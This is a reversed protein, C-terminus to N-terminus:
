PHSQPSGSADSSVSESLRHEQVTKEIGNIAERKHDPILHSYRMTMRIDKHRMLERITFLPTGRLALWSAFTHRLTHFTVKQLPDVIGENLGASEVAKFFAKSVEKIHEKGGGRVKFVPDDPNGEGIQDFLRKVSDTMYVKEQGGGKGTVHIIGNKSDVDHWKLGFIEGARLGTYLSLFAINRTQPSRKELEAMLREAEEVTLFRQRENNLKPLKIASVPNRGEWLEWAIAKNFLQRVLVLCHKITAAAKGERHLDDKMRELDLPVVQDLTKGSFRGQLHIRYTCRDHRPDSKNAQLWTDYRDWLESFLVGKKKRERPLEEGHRILRLREGRLQSALAATYGESGWGVKEYIFKGSADRYTVYFCRDPKGHHRRQDSERYYVGVFKQVRFMDKPM